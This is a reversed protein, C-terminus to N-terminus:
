YQSFEDLEGVMGKLAGSILQDTDTTEVYNEKVFEVVDVLTRLKKLSRDAAAYAYPFLTGLFFLVAAIVAFRNKTSKEM